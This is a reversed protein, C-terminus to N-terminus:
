VDNNFGFPDNDVVLITFAGTQPLIITSGSFERIQMSFGTAEYDAPNSPDGNPKLLAQSTVYAFVPNGNISAPTIAITYDFNKLEQEFRVIYTGDGQRNVSAINVAYRVNPQGAPPTDSYKCHALQLAAPNGVNGSNVAEVAEVISENSVTLATNANPFTDRLAEKISRLEREM